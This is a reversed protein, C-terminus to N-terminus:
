LKRIIQRFCIECDLLEILDQINKLVSTDGGVDIVTFHFTADPNEISYDVNDFRENYLLKQCLLSIQYDFRKLLYERVFILEAQGEVFIAIKRM